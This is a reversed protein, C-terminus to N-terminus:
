EEKANIKSSKESIDEINDFPSEETKESELKEIANKKAAKKKVTKKKKKVVKKKVIKKKAKIADKKGVINDKDDEEAKKKDEAELRVEEKMARYFKLFQAMTRESVYGVADEFSIEKCNKLYRLYRSNQPVITISRVFRMGGFNGNFKYRPHKLVVYKIRNKM